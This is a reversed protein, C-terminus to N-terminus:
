KTSSGECKDGNGRDGDKSKPTYGLWADEFIDKNDVVYATYDQHKQRIKNSKSKSTKKPANKKPKPEPQAEAGSVLQHGPVGYDMHTDASFDAVSDEATVVPSHTMTDASVDVVSNNTTSALSHTVPSSGPLQERSTRIIPHLALFDSLHSGLLMHGNGPLLIRGQSNKPFLKSDEDPM